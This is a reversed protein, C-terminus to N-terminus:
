PPKARQMKEVNPEEPTIISLVWAMKLSLIPKAKNRNRFPVKELWQPSYTWFTYKFTLSSLVCFALPSAYLTCAPAFPSALTQFSKMCFFSSHRRDGMRENVCTYTLNSSSNCMSNAAWFTSGQKSPSQLRVSSPEGRGLLLSSEECGWGLRFTRIYNTVSSLQKM